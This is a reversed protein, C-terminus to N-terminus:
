LLVDQEDVSSQGATEFCHLMEKPQNLFRIIIFIRVIVKMCFTQQWCPILLETVLKLLVIAVHVILVYGLQYVIWLVEHLLDALMYSIGIHVVEEEHLLPTMAM